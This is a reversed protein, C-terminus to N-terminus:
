RTFTDCGDCLGARKHQDASTDARHVYALIGPGAMEKERKERECRKWASDGCRARCRRCGVGAERAPAVGSGPGGRGREVREVRAPAEVVLLRGGVPPLHNL